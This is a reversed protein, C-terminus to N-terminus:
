LHNARERSQSTKFLTWHGSEPQSSRGPGQRQSSVLVSPTPTYAPGAPEYNPLHKAEITGAQGPQKSRGRGGHVTFNRTNEARLMQTTVTDTKCLCWSPREPRPHPLRHLRQRTDLSSSSRPRPSPVELFRQAGASRPQRGCAILVSPALSGLGTALLPSARHGSHSDRLHRARIGRKWPHRRGLGTRASEYKGLKGRSKKPRHTMQFHGKMTLRQIKGSKKNNHIEQHLEATTETHKSKTGKVATSGRTGYLGSTRARQTVLARTRPTAPPGTSRHGPQVPQPHDQSDEAPLARAESRHETAYQFGDNLTPKDPKRHGVPSQKM